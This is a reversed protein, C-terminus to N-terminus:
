VPCVSLSACLCMHIEIFCVSVFSAWFPGMLRDAIQIVVQSHLVSVWLCMGACVPLSGKSYLDIPDCSNDFLLVELLTTKERM